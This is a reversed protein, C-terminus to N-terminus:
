TFDYVLLNSEEYIQEQVAEMMEDTTWKMSQNIKHEIGKM